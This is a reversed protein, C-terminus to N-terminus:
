ACSAVTGGVVVARLNDVFTALLSAAGKKVSNGFESVTGTAQGITYNTEPMVNTEVLTTGQTAVNFVVDWTFIDGKKKGQASADKADCFQRVKTMPQLAERLKTSLRQSYFYGGLSSVAWLQGAM